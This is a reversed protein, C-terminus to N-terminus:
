NVYNKFLMMCLRCNKLIEKDGDIEIHKNCFFGKYLWKFMIRILRQKIQFLDIDKEVIDRSLISIENCIETEKDIEIVSGRSGNIYKSILGRSMHMKDAIDRLSLGYDEHLIEILCRKVSPYVYKSIFDLLNMILM